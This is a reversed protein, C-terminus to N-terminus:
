TKDRIEDDFKELTVTSLTQNAPISACAPVAPDTDQSKLEISTLQAVTLLSVAGGASSEAASSPGAARPEQTPPRLTLHTVNETQNPFPLSEQRVAELLFLFRSCWGSLFSKLDCQSDQSM